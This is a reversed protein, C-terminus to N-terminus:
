SYARFRNLEFVAITGVVDWSQVQGCAPAVNCRLVMAVGDISRCKGFVPLRVKYIQVIGAVFADDM